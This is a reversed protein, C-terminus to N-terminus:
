RWDGLATQWLALAAVAATDARLVRPGLTAPVAGPLARLRAREAESWGGEPGILVAWPGPAAEALVACAPAADRAEDCFLLRRGPAWEDLVASLRAPEAVEPVSLIGCQEAAEVAHARLRAANVREANTFDTFIPRLRRVGMETAKEAVFDTRAKKLPAFLLDLDPAADQARLREVCSLAGDRKGARAIVARWEGDRGNFLAVADGERLRMVTFLYNAHGRGVAVEARPALDPEVFLRVKPAAEPM